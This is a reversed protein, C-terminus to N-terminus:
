ALRRAAARLHDPRRSKLTSTPVPRDYVISGPDYTGTMSGTLIVYRHFGLAAPVLMIAALCFLLMMALNMGLQAAMTLGGGDLHLRRTSRAGQYANEAGTGADPMSVVFAIRHKSGAAWSGLSASSM